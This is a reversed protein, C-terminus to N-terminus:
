EYQTPLKALDPDKIKNQVEEGHQLLFTSTSNSLGQSRLESIILSCIKEVIIARREDDDTIESIIVNGPDLRGEIKTGNYLAELLPAIEGSLIDLDKMARFAWKYYPMFRKNLLFVMSITDSVFKAITIERTIIDGRQATRLFNYQGTQAIALCRAAIKKLRLDEPYYKSIDERIRSFNGLKDVFVRGNICMALNAEPARRWELITSPCKESGILSAYFRGVPMVTNKIGYDSISRFQKDSHKVFLDEKWRVVDTGFNAFDEDTMWCFFEIGWDHDRSLEDDYGFCESGNGVLGLAINDAKDGFLERLSPLAFEEVFKQSLELAGKM